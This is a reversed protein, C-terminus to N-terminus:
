PRVEILGSALEDYRQRLPCRSDRGSEYKWLGPTVNPPLQLSVVYRTAMNVAGPRAGRRAVIIVPDDASLSRFTYVVEGPCAEKQELVTSYDIFGGQKATFRPERGREGPGSVMVVVADDGAVAWVIGLGLSLSIVSIISLLGVVALISQLRPNM